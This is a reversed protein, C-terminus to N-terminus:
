TRITPQRKGCARSGCPGAFPKSKWRRLTVLRGSTATKPSCSCPSVATPLPATCHTTCDAPSPCTLASFLCRQNGQSRVWHPKLDGCVKEGRGSSRLLTRCVQQRPQKQKLGPPAATLLWPRLGRTTFVARDKLGPPAGTQRGEPALFSFSVSRRDWPSAGRAILQRGEPALSLGPLLPASGGGPTGPSPSSSASRLPLIASRQSRPLGSAGILVPQQGRRPAARHHTLANPFFSCCNHWALSDAAGLLSSRGVERCTGARGQKASRVRQTNSKM